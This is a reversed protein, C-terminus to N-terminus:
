GHQVYTFGGTDWKLTGSLTWKYGGRHGFPLFGLLLRGWSALGLNELGLFQSWEQGPYSNKQSAYRFLLKAMCVRQWFRAYLLERFQHWPEIEKPSSYQLLLKELELNLESRLAVTKQDKHVEAIAMFERIQGIKFRNAGKIWYDWDGCFQLHEDFGGLVEYVQRRWFVTPQPLSWGTRRLLQLRFPPQVELYVQGDPYVDLHDGFVVDTDPNALFHKVATEVTWPLYKDDTNLYALIDGKVLRLGKNIANYMGRDPESLWQLNYTGEYRKLIELTEDTSGADIVIHQIHPYSQGQVSLLTREIFRGQNFSPTVISVLPQNM